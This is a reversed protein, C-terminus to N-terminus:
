GKVGGAALGAVLYRQLFFFILVAPISMVISMAAFESWPTGSAYQGVMGRLVMPLTFRSPDTLFTWALIFESWGTLFGWLATVAIGPASLPLIVRIFSQTRTCGDIMAAEELDYPLSDIFGKMNWIAFPLASSAYAIALGWLTTRLKLANLLVFLPALTGGPPIMLVLVFGLMGLRRGPFRFRSFAYSATTGVVVALVATGGATLLSNRLLQLFTVPNPSPQTLVKFYADLTAGPPIITLGTPRSLDRPDLSLSVIWVIPFLVTALMGLLFLQVLDAEMTERAQKLARDRFVAVWLRVYRVAIVAGAILALIAGVTQAVTASSRALLSAGLGLLGLSAGLALSAWIVALVDGASTKVPFSATTREITM